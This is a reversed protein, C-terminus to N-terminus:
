QNKLFASEKIALKSGCAQCRLFYNGNEEVIQTDPKGCDECVVFLKAFELMKENIRQPLIRGKLIIRQNDYDIPVALSKSLYKILLNAPRNFVSAIQNFNNIITKNREFRGTVRPIEFREKNSSIKPLKEIAIDLLKNYNLM